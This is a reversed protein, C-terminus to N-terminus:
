LFMGCVGDVELVLEVDVGKWVFVNDVFFLKGGDLDIGVVVVKDVGVVFSVEGENVGMERGVCEGRLVM